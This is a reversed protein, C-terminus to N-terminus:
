RYRDAARIRHNGIVQLLKPDANEMLKEPMQYKIYANYRPFAWAPGYQQQLLYRIKGSTNPTGRHWCQSNHLYIDGAKCLVDIPGRGEFVPTVGEPPRRGSYHSGPVYQSPGNKITEIDTLAVQVTLWCIPMDIRPDHRAVEPPLPFFLADDVHWREIAKKDNTRLVNMGCQQCGPGFIAEMLSLIPDRILLDCYIRDLENTHRLIFDAEVYGNAQAEPDDFLEDTKRVLAEVESQELVGPILVFGDRKFDAIIRGTKEPSFPEGRLISSAKM